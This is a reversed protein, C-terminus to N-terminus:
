FAWWMGLGTSATAGSVPGSDVPSIATVQYVVPSIPTGPLVLIFTLCETVFVISAGVWKAGRTTAVTARAAPGEDPKHRM